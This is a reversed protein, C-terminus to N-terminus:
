PAAAAQPLASRREAVAGVLPLKWSRGRYAQVVCVAWAIVWVIATAFALWYMFQFGAPSVLLAAFAGALLLVALLGLGGLGLAAQYAHFRVFNNTREALLVLVGSFPGALYALAAATNPQLGTSSPIAAPRVRRRRPRTPEPSPSDFDAFVVDGDYRPVAVIHFPAVVMQAGMLESSPSREEVLVALAMGRRELSKVEITFGPMPRAGAFVAAVMHTSFDVAPADTGPGAHLAWLTQWEAADRAVATRAELIRSGDGRALTKLPSPTM